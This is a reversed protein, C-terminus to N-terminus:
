AYAPEFSQAKGDKGWYPPLDRPKAIIVPMMALARSTDAGGHGCRSALRIAGELINKVKDAYEGM